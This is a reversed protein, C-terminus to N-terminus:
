LPFICAHWFLQLGATTILGGTQSGSTGNGNSGCTLCESAASSASCTASLADEQLLIDMLDSGTSLADSNHADAPSRAQQICPLIQYALHLDYLKTNCM